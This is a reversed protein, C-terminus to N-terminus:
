DKEEFQVTQAIKASSPTLGRPDIEKGSGKLNAVIYSKCNWHLPPQYREAEPDDKAFTRGALDQCIESVPDGNVFTFSEIEDLTEPEYFAANRSENVIVGAANTAGKEISPGDVFEDSANQIENELIAESGASNEVNAAYKFVISAVLDTIQKGVLLASQAKIRKQIKSPLKTIDALELEKKTDKIARAAIETFWDTVQREYAGAGVPSVQKFANIRQAQTSARYKRMLDQVFRDGIKQLEERM